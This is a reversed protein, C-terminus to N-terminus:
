VLGHEYAYATAGTRSSVNLKTFINSVHRDITRESLVLEAAIARNTGGKTLMRLIELERGTLGHTPRQAAASAMRAVEQVDPDAGLEEFITRAADSEFGATEADGLAQM